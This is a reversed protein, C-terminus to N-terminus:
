WTAARHPRVRRPREDCFGGGVRDFGTMDRGQDVGIEELGNQLYNAAISSSGPVVPFNDDVEALLIRKREKCSLSRQVGSPRLRPKDSVSPCASPQAAASAQAKSADASLPKEGVGSNRSIASACF